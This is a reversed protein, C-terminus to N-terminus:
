HSTTYIAVDALMAACRHTETISMDEVNLSVPGWTLSHTRAHRITQGVHVGDLAMEVRASGDPWHFAKATFARAGKTAPSHHVTATKM